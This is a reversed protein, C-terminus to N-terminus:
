SHGTLTLVEQGTAADWVKVTKDCSASAIRRGDPQVGRRPSIGEHSELTITLLEPPLHMSFTGNLGAFNAQEPRVFDRVHEVHGDKWVYPLISILSM